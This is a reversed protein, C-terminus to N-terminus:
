KFPNSFTPVTSSEKFQSRATEVASAARQISETRVGFSEADRINPPLAAYGLGYLYFVIGDLFLLAICVMFVIWWSIPLLTALNLSYTDKWKSFTDLFFKM